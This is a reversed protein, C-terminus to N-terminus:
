ITYPPVLGNAAALTEVAVGYRRALAGLTDGAVVRHSRMGPKAAAPTYRAPEARIVPTDRPVLLALVPSSAPPAAYSAASGALLAAIISGYRITRRVTM